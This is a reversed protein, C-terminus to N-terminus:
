AGRGGGVLAGGRAMLQKASVTCDAPGARTHMMCQERSLLCQLVGSYAEPRMQVGSVRGAYRGGESWEERYLERDKEERGRESM